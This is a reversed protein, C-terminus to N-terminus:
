GPCGKWYQPKFLETFTEMPYLAPDPMGAALSITGQAPTSLMDRLISASPNQPYATFLQPWPVESLSEVDRAQVVYTGSGVKTWVLGQQELKRYANIATTRSVAFLDALEREPPLKTGSPLIKKQIKETILLAIQLYLPQKNSTNLEASNLHKSIDM